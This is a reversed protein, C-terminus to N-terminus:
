KVVKKGNIIYLGKGAKQVRQGALNYIGEQAASQETAVSKIATAEENFTFFVNKFSLWSVNNDAAVDFKVVLKGDEGIAGQAVYEKLYFQSTGVQTGTCVDVPKGQCVQMTIGTAPAEVGNKVRVRVWATVDYVDGEEYGELTATLTKAALSEGDGTWYEIFPVAFNTGDKDGEDSWTNVHYTDWKEVDADWASMLIDDIYNAARWDTRIDTFKAAQEDSLTGDALGDEADSILEKYTAWTYLNTGELEAKNIPLYKAANAYAAISKEAAQIAAQLAGYNDVSVEAELAAKAADLAAKVEANMKGEPISAILAAAEEATIVNGLYTLRFNDAKYWWVGDASYSFTDDNNSGVAGITLKGDTVTATITGEYFLAADACEVGVHDGNALLYVKAGNNTVLAKIEYKGKPLGEITQTVPYGADWINFLYDGHCNSTAYNGENFKAGHDKSAKYAWGITNGTEFSPNVIAATFDAGETAQLQAIALKAFDTHITNVDFSEDYTCNDYGAKLTSIDINSNIATVIDLAKKIAEYKAISNNATQIAQTLTQIAATIEASSTFTSEEVIAAKLAALVDANMKKDYLAQAEAVKARYDVLYAELSYKYLKVPGLICWSLSTNFYGQFGLDITTESEITFDFANSFDGKSFANAAKYLDNSGAYSAVGASTLAVVNQKKEGAFIWAKDENTGDGAGNRYFANVALRYDGAPLTVTQSFKFDKRDIAVSAGSNWQSYFEVVPVDGDTKWDTYKFADSFYTWGNNVVSLDANQLYTSTVDEQAWGATAGMLAMAAFFLKSKKM